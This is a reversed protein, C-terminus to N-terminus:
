TEFCFVQFLIESWTAEGQTESQLVDIFESALVITRQVYLLSQRFYAKRSSDKDSISASVMFVNTRSRISWEMPWTVEDEDDEEEKTQGLFAISVLNPDCVFFALLTIEFVKSWFCM